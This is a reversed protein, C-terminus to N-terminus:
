LKSICLLDTDIHQIHKSTSSSSSEDEHQKHVRLALRQLNYTNSDIASRLLSGRGPQVCSPQRQMELMEVCSRSSTTTTGRRYM